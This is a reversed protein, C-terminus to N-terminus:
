YRMVNMQLLGAMDEKIHSMNVLMVSSLACGAKRSGCGLGWVGWFGAAIVIEGSKRRKASDEAVVWIGWGGRFGERVM